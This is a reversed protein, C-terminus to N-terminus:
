SHRNTVARASEIDIEFKHSSLFVKSNLDTLIETSESQILAKKERFSSIFVGSRSQM